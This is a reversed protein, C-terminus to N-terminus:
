KAVCNWINRQRISTIRTKFEDYQNSQQDQKIHHPIERGGQRYVGRIMVKLKKWALLYLKVSLYLNDMYICHYSHTVHSILSLTRSYLPCVGM